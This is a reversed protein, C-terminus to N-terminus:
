EENGRASHFTRVYIEVYVQIMVAAPREGVATAEIKAELTAGRLQANVKVPQGVRVVSVGLELLGALLNDVAVNSAATVLVQAGAPLAEALSCVLRMATTTKGTGPPRRLLKFM